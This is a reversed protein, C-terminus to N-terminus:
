FICELAQLRWVDNAAIARLDRRGAQRVTPNRHRIKALMSLIKPPVSPGALSSEGFVLHQLDAPSLWDPAVELIQLDEWDALSRNTTSLNKGHWRYSVDPQELCCIQHGSALARLWYEYDQLQWLSENFAGVASWCSRTMAVTPACIFNGEYYIRRFLDINSKYKFNHFLAPHAGIPLESGESDIWVPTSCVISCSGSQLAEVRRRISGPLLVDDGSFLVIFKGTSQALGMNLASSPGGNPKQLVRVGRREFMQVLAFTRDTSGDDVIIVEIDRVGQDLVSNVAAEIYREHNYTTIVVSIAASM